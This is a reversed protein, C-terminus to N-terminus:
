RPISGTGLLLKQANPLTTLLLLLLLLKLWELKLDDLFLCTTEAQVLVKTPPQLHVACFTCYLIVLVNGTYQRQRRCDLAHTVVTTNAPAACCCNPTVSVHCAACKHGQLTTLGRSSCGAAMALSIGRLANQVGVNGGASSRVGTGSEATGRGWWWWVVKCVLLAEEV